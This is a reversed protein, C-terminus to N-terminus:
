PGTLRAKKLAKQAAERVEADRSQAAKQLYPFAAASDGSSALLSGLDLNARDFEPEIRLATRYEELAGNIQGKTRLLNGLFEHAAASTPHTRLIAEVQKQAEDFRRVRNLALAYDYRAQLYDDQYRMAAEFHYRAEDFRGTEALLNGLNNRAPGFNPQLRVADRLIPEAHAADGSEFLIAGLLNAPEALGPGARTAREFRDIAERMRGEGLQVFGSQIWAAPDDPALRLAKKLVTDARTYQRLKLLCIGLRVLAPESEPEHRLAEEYWPLAADFKGANSLADALQLYYEGNVPRYKGLAQSLRAIGAELNSGQSVQAIALYLEDEPRSFAAPYPVVEGRYATAETQRKEPRDGLLDGAPKFRQIYHDTMVAHVVDDTRRKPMHCSICDPSPTHAAAHCHRCVESYHRSAEEGRPIRHPDHCTTCTLAGNSQLFCQSKRLRYVSGTIEFKDDYGKGPAHDFYLMFDDLPEGPRYSFPAREYRVISGPLASSTTELHCQMCVEMQREPSLRSPNVVAARVDEVKAGQRALHAHQEGNGHCRQCDVGEPVSLFVAPARPDRSASPVKPYANHCFMCDYTVTRNLAQHDPRDYGPNMAWYGGKEAYWGLPLLVLSHSPTWHLYARAHNGSGLVFDIATETNNTVKGDFGLQYQRQLYHGNRELVAYYTDSAVHYYPERRDSILGPRSRYFSRAMGTERYTEWVDAHCTVCDRSQADCVM